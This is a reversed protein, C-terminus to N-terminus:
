FQFYIFPSFGSASVASASIVLLTIVTVGRLGTLLRPNLSPRPILDLAVVTAVAFLFVKDATLYFAMGKIPVGQQHLGFMFQLLTTAHALNEARFFVWGIVVLFLTVGRQLGRGLPGHARRDWKTVREIVLLAGHYLGWVIFQTAAGHWLGCLFFVIVLNRMTQVGGHRNGGLPIYLYDRFWRTLTMHWRRWFDTITIATYPRNFNEPFHFGLMRAMGIAMASYGAFDFLIQFTYALMATWVLATTLQTASTELIGTAVSALPDAILTKMALGTTLRYIGEFLDDVTITRSHLDDKVEVYRVIPGAILQPFFSKYTTFEIISPTPVITGRYADILYSMAQFSFFSIGLPIAQLTASHTEQIDSVAVIPSFIDLLFHFYKYYVLAGVDASVGIFLISKSWRPAVRVITLGVLWNWVIYALLLPVYAGPGTAYFILSACLIVVNRWAPACLWYIVLASPFFLFLFAPTSFVM